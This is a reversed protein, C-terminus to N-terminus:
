IHKEEKNRERKLWETNVKRLWENLRSERKEVKLRKNMGKKRQWIKIEETKGENNVQMEEMWEKEWKDIWEEEKTVWENWKGKKKSENEKNEERWVKIRKWKGKRRVKGEEM